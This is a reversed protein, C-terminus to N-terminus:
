VDINEEIVSWNEISVEYYMDGTEKDQKLTFEPGAWEGVVKGGLSVRIAEISPYDIVEINKSYLHDVLDPMDYEELVNADVGLYNLLTFVWRDREENISERFGNRDVLMTLKM